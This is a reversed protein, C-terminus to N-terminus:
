LIIVLLLGVSTLVSSYKNEPSLIIIVSHSAMDALSVDRKMPGLFSSCVSTTAQELIKFYTQGGWRRQSNWM